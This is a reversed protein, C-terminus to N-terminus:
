LLTPTLSTNTVELLLFTRAEYGGLAKLNGEKVVKTKTKYNVM